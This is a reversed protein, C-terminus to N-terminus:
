RILLLFFLAIIIDDLFWIVPLRNNGGELMYQYDMNAVLLNKNKINGTIIGLQYIWMMFAKYISTLITFWLGKEYIKQNVYCESFLYYASAILQFLPWFLYAPNKLRYALFFALIFSVLLIIRGFLEWSYISKGPNTKVIMSTAKGYRFTRGIAEKFTEFSKHYAIAKSNFLIKYGADKIEFCFDIDEGEAATFQPNFSYKRYVRKPMCLNNTAAWLLDSDPGERMSFVKGREIIQTNLNQKGFFKVEGSFVAKPFKEAAAAYYWLINKDVITETDIFIVYDTSAKNKGVNRANAPGRNKRLQILKVGESKCKKIVPVTQDTSGDDVIILSFKNKPYNVSLISEIGQKIYKEGNYCPMIFTFTTSHKAM